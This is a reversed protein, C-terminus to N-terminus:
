EIKKPLMNVKNLFRGRLAPIRWEDCLNVRRGQSRVVPLLDLADDGDEVSDKEVGCESEIGVPSADSSQPLNCYLVMTRM